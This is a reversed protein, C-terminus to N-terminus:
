ATRRHRPLRPQTAPRSHCTPWQGMAGPVGVQWRAGRSHRRGVARKGQVTVEKWGTILRGASLVPKAGPCAALTLNSDEPTFVLPTQLFYFGGGVFVTPSTAAGGEAHQKLGRVAKLAGPLTAFPGDTRERNPAPLRGSWHDNGNTCVFFIGPGPKPWASAAKQPEPRACGALLAAVIATLCLSVPLLHRANARHPSNCSPVAQEGEGRGEGEPLPLVTARADALSARQCNGCSQRARERERLSLAPTLPFSVGPRDFGAVYGLSGSFLPSM